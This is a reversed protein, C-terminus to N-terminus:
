TLNNYNFIRLFNCCNLYREKAINSVNNNRFINISFSRLIAFNTPNKRIRSLDEKFEVDRVYHNLNEIKWHDQIIKCFNKAECIITSIYYAVVKSEIWKKKNYNYLSRKRSVKIITKIYRWRDLNNELIEPVLFVEAKRQEKRGHAVNTKQRYISSKELEETFIKIEQCLKKQNNKVQIVAQNGTAIITEITKKVICRM